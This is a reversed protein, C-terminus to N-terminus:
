KRYKDLHNKGCTYRVSSYPHSRFLKEFLNSSENEAMRRWFNLGVEPDYGAKYALYFGAFDAELEDPQTYAATLKSFVNVIINIDPGFISAPAQKQVIKTTHKNENHGIEHGLINALEHDNEVFDLMATTFYVRGGPITWANVLSNDEILYVEYNLDKRSVYPKIKALIRRLKQIRRDEVYDFNFQNHITNGAEIEMNTSIPFITNLVQEEAASGAFIVYDEPSDFCNEEFAPIVADHPFEYEPIEHGSTSQGTGTCSFNILVTFVLLAKKISTM